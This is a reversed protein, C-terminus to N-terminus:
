ANRAADDAITGSQVLLAVAGATVLVIGWFVLAHNVRM